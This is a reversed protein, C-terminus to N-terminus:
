PSYNVTIDYFIATSLPDMTEMYVRYRFCQGTNVNFPITYGFVQTGSTQTTQFKDSSTGSPGIFDSPSFTVGTCVGGIGPKVAIQFETNTNIPRNISVDFRNFAVGNGANFTASEFRGSTPNILNLIEGASLARNYIRVEDIVGDFRLTIAGNQDEAGILVSFPAYSLPNSWAYTAVLVGNLYAKSSSGDFTGALHYWAGTTLTGGVACQTSTEAACFRVSTGLTGLVYSDASGSLRKDVATKGGSLVDAKVWAAVTVGTPPRLSISDPIRVDDNVGDFDLGKAIKGTAWTPDDTGPSSTAGLTGNNANGSSDNVIQGTSEDFKWYGVLGSNLHVAEVPKVLYDNFTNKTSLSIALIAFIFVTLVVLISKRKHLLYKM